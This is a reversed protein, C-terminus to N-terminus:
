RGDPSPVNVDGTHAAAKAAACVRHVDELLNVALAGGGYAGVVSAMHRSRDHLAASALAEAVAERIEFPTAAPGLALGLGLEQIRQANDRQDRGLPVCVVPVGALAAAMLTGTGGHDSGVPRGSARSGHPVYGRIEVASAFSLEEPALERGTLVLVRANVGDLAAVIRGLADEHHMYTSGMTVVILPRQDSAPWPSDWEAGGAEEIIPGVHTVNGPPDLWDDYERPLVVLAAAARRALAVTVSDPGSSLPAVGIGARSANVQEYWGRRADADDNAGGHFRHLTHILLVDPTSLQEAFGVLSRLLYDVVIVDAHERSLEAAVADPLQRGLFIGDLYTRQEELQRGLAPKFEAEAPFPCLACGSAAARAAYTAPALIRVRHGRETLLRGLGLAPQSAGGGQWTAILLHM